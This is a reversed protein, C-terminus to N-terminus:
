AMRQVEKKLESRFDPHAVAILEKARQSITKGRLRAIGFETVVYDACNRQVTVVTGEPLRPTIRSVSGQQATSPLVTISRGGKSLLAGFVFPIQGGAAALFKDGLTEAAIQGTLDVALAQNIAVFNDHSAIVRIDELYQVDVLWFLPNMNVWEMEERTSGGISTVVLKGENITKYKGNIVGERALNIIGPPTAESHFGIDHKNDLLGLRVLPENTRGVGIQITDGDRLLRNVNRAIDSQFPETDKIKRGALSGSGPAGGAAVHEVLYDMQSIHVFNDGYTRILSPNVEAVVPKALQKAQQVRRRKDWLSAGFSCFGFKDPASIEVFIIDPPKEEATMIDPILFPLIIDIRSEDVAEQCVATAQMTALQFSNQWGEDYWGFDYSPTPVTVRVDKLEGKRSALSLGIAFSERGIPWVVHDGSKVLNAAQDPTILKDKYQEKWDKM